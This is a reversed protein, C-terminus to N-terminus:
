AIQHCQGDWNLKGDCRLNANEFGDTRNKGYEKKLPHTEDIDHGTSMRVVANRDCIGMDEAKWGPGRNGGACDFFTPESDETKNIVEIWTHDWGFKKGIRDQAPAMGLRMTCNYKAGPALLMSLTQKDPMELAALEPMQQVMWMSNTHWKANSVSVGTVLWGDKWSYWHPRSIDFTVHTVQGIDELGPLVFVDKSGKEFPNDPHTLSNKLEVPKLCRGMTQNELSIKVIDDTGALITNATTISVIYTTDGAITLGCTFDGLPSSNEAGISSSTQLTPKQQVNRRLRRTYSKKALHSAASQDTAGDSDGAFMSWQSNLDDTSPDALVVTGTAIDGQAALILGTATHVIDRNFYTFQQRSDGPSWPQLQLTTGIGGTVTLALASSTCIFSSGFTYWSQAPSGDAKARVGVSGSDLGTLVANSSLGNYVNQSNGLSLWKQKLDTSDANDIIVSRNGNSDPASASLALSPTAKLVISGDEEMSWSQHTGGITPITLLVKSGAVTSDKPKLALNSDAHLIGGVDYYCFRARSQVSAAAASLTVASALAPNACTMFQSTGVNLIVGSGTRTFVISGRYDSTTGDSATYTGQFVPQNCQNTWYYTDSSWPLLQINAGFPNGSASWSLWTGDTQVGSIVTNSSGASVVFGQSTGIIQSDDTWTSSGQAKTASDYIGCFVRCLNHPTSLSIPPCKSAGQNTGNITTQNHTPSFDVPLGFEGAWYGVIKSDMEEPALRRRFNQFIEDATRAVNWLRVEALYGTLSSAYQDVTGITLRDTSNVNLISTTKGQQSTSLAIGDLYINSSSNRVAAVHHWKGDCVSVSGSKVTNYTSGDDTMFSISGPSISLCFGGHSSGGAKAKRAVLPGGTFTKVWVEVTFPSKSFNYVAASPAELYQLFASGLRYSNVDMKAEIGCLAM